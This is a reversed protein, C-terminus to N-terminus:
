VESASADASELNGGFSNLFNQTMQRLVWWQTHQNKCSTMVTSLTGSLMTKMTNMTMMEVSMLKNILTVEPFQM